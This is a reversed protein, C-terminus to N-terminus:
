ALQSMFQTNFGFWGHTGPFDNVFYEALFNFFVQYLWGEDQIIWKFQTREGFFVAIFGPQYLTKFEIHVPLFNGIGIGLQVVRDILIFTKFFLQFQCLFAVIFGHSHIVVEQTGKFVAHRRCGPEPNSNIAQGHQKRALM